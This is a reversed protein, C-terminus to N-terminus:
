FFRGLPLQCFLLFRCCRLIIRLEEPLPADVVISIEQLLCVLEHLLLQTLVSELPPLLACSKRLWDEAVNAVFADLRVAIVLVKIFAQHGVVIDDILV